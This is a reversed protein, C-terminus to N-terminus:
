LAAHIKRWKRIVDRMDKCIIDPRSRVLLKRNRIGNTVAVSYLGTKKGCIIEAETDGIIIGRGPGLESVLKVKIAWAAAKEDYASLVRRFFRALRKEKLERILNKRAKRTTILFLDARKSLFKLSGLAGKALKNRKLYGPWEIRKKRERLYKKVIPFNKPLSQSAIMEEKVHARKLHWYKKMPLAKGGLLTMLDSYLGHLRYANDLLPGDLDIFIRIKDRPM